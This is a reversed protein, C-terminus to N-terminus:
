FAFCNDTKTRAADPAFFGSNVHFIHTVVAHVLEIAADQLIKFLDAAIMVSAVAEHEVM